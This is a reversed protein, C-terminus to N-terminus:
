APRMRGAIRAAASTLDLFNVQVEPDRTILPQLISFYCLVLDNLPSFNSWDYYRINTFDKSHETLFEELTGTFEVLGDHQFKKWSERAEDQAKRAENADRADVTLSWFLEDLEHWHEYQGQVHLHRKLSKLALEIALPYMVFLIQSMGVMEQEERTRRGVTSITRSGGGLRQALQEKLWYLASGLELTRLGNVRDSPASATTTM